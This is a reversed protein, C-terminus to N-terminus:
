AINQIQERIKELEAKISVVERSIGSDQAKSGLTNTERNMEQLIFDLEKGAEQEKEIEKQLWNKDVSALEQEDGILDGSESIAAIAYEPNDPHGIKRTVILDLLVNLYRAIEIGIVVGGRPLAYVVVNKDRYKDLKQALLKGAETRDTFRV